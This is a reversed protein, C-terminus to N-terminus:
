VTTKWIEVLAQDEEEYTLCAKNAAQQQKRRKIESISISAQVVIRAVANLYWRGEEILKIKRNQFEELVQELTEFGVGAVIENLYKKSLLYNIKNNM